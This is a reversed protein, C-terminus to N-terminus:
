EHPEFKEREGLEPPKLLEEILQDYEPTGPSVGRSEIARRMWGPIIQIADPPLPTWDYRVKESM